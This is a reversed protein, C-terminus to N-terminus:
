KFWQCKRQATTEKDVSEKSISYCVSTPNSFSLLPWMRYVCYWIVRQYGHEVGCSCFTTSLELTSLYIALYIPLHIPLHTPLTYLLFPTHTYLHISLYTSQYTTSHTPQHIHPVHAPPNITPQILLQSSLHNAPHTSAICAHISPHIKQHRHFFTKRFKNYKWPGMLQISYLFENQFPFDKWGYIDHWAGNWKITQHFARIHHSLFTYENRFMQKM